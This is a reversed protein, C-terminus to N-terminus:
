KTQTQFLRTYFIYTDIGLYVGISHVLALGMHINNVTVTPKAKNDPNHRATNHWYSNIDPMNSNSNTHPTNDPFIATNYPTHILATNNILIIAIVFTMYLINRYSGVAGLGVWGCGCGCGLGVWGLGFVFTM